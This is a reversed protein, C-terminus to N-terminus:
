RDLKFSIEKESIIHVYGAAIAFRSAKSIVVYDGETLDCATFDFENDITRKMKHLFKSGFVEVSKM